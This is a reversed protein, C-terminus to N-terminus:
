YISCVPKCLWSSFFQYNKTSEPQNFSSIPYEDLFSSFERLPDKMFSSHFASSVQLQKSANIIGNSKWETVIRKLESLYGSLVILQSSNYNAIEVNCKRALEDIKSIYSSNIVVVIMGLSSENQYESAMCLGRKRVILLADTLSICESAVLAAYEGVSHGLMWVNQNDERSKAWNIFSNLLIAPQCNETASLNSIPGKFMLDLLPINLTKEAEKMIRRCHENENYVNEGMGVFQTGQGPFLAVVSFCSCSKAIGNIKLVFLRNM